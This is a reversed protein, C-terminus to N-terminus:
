GTPREWWKPGHYNELAKAEREKAEREDRERAERREEDQVLGWEPSYRRDYPVPEFMSQDFIRPPPWGTPM